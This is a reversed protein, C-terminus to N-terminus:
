KGGIQRARQYVSPYSHSQSIFQSTLDQGLNNSLTQIIQGLEGHPVCQVRNVLGKHSLM